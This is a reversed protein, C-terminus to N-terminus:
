AIGRTLAGRWQDYDGRWICPTREIFEITIGDQAGTQTFLDEHTVFLMRVPRGLLAEWATKVDSLRATSATADIHTGSSQAMDGINVQTNSGVMWVTECSAAKGLKGSTHAFKSITADFNAEIDFVGKEDRFHHWFFANHTKWYPRDRIELEDPSSPYFSGSTVISQVSELPSILWDLPLAEPTM